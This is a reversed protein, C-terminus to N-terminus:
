QAAIKMNTNEPQSTAAILAKNAAEVDDAAAALWTDYQEQSVVRVALPMFAHDKGCLESCQGYYMGERDAKFWTENLRGPVADMKVGFAPVAYSHIVDGATIQLRVIKDVPVVMENDVALLRPENTGKAAREEDNLMVSDFSVEPNDPYEYGWYWQYGTVKITLDAEPIEMQKYLLRFSPVALVLLILIPVVTWVIEIMTNHSTKSPEPNAKANFKLIVIALLAAVFVVIVGIIWFTFNGFWHIDDMVTSASEQLAIGWSTPQAALAKNAMMTTTIFMALAALGAGLPAVASNLRAILRKVTLVDKIRRQAVNKRVPSRRHFGGIRNQM